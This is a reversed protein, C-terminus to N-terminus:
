AEKVFVSVRLQYSEFQFGLVRSIVQPPTQVHLDAGRVISPITLVCACGRDCLRSKVYGAVMNSLEGLADNIMEGEIEADPIGLMRSTLLRAFPLHTHLSVSGIVIGNFGVSSVIQDEAKKELTAAPIPALEISLMTEFVSQLATEAFERIEEVAPLETVM